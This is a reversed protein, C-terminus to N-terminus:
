LLWAEAPLGALEPPLPDKALLAAASTDAVSALWAGYDGGALTSGPTQDLEIENLAIVDPGGGKDVRALVAVTNALKVRLHENTWAGPQYDEYVAVGDVDHLNEVNYAVVSFSRADLSPAACSFALCAFASACRLFCLSM